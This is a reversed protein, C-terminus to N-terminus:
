RDVELISYVADRLENPTSPKFFAKNVLKSSFRMNRIKEALVANKSATLEVTEQPIETLLLEYGKDDKIIKFQGQSWGTLPNVAIQDPDEIFYFGRDGLEPIDQGSVSLKTNVGAGGLFDLAINENDFNGKLVDDVSFTVRTYILTDTEIVDVATVEAEIILTAKGVIEEFTMQQLTTAFVLELNLWLVIAILSKLLKV